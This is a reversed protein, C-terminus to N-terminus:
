CAASLHVLRSNETDVRPAKARRHAGRGCHRATTAAKGIV